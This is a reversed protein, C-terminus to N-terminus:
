RREAAERSHVALDYRDDEEYQRRLSEFQQRTHQPNPSVIIAAQMAALLMQRDEPGMDPYHKTTPTKTTTSPNVIANSNTTAAASRASTHDSMDESDEKGQEDDDSDGEEEDDFDDEEEEYDSDEEEEYDSDEEEEEENNSHEQQGDNSNKEEENNSNREDKNSDQEEENHSGKEEENGFDVKQTKSSEEENDTGLHGEDKDQSHEGEV